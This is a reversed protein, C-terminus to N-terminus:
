QEILEKKAIFQLSHPNKSNKKLGHFEAINKIGGETWNVLVLFNLLLM